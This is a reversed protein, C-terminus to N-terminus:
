MKTPQKIDASPAPVSVSRQNAVGSGGPPPKNAGGSIQITKIDFKPNKKNPFRFPGNPDKLCNLQKDIGEKVNLLMDRVSPFRFHYEFNKFNDSEKDKFASKLQHVRM